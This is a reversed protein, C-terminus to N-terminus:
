AGLLAQDYAFLAENIEFVDYKGNVIFYEIIVDFKSSHSLAFGAKRLLSETESLDLKLAIALAIATPKSPRYAPDSRIKSFLKRDVNARKYVESDKYGREDIMRLLSTSFSEDLSELASVLSSKGAAAGCPAPTKDTTRESAEHEVAEYESAEENETLLKFLRRKKKKQPEPPAVQAMASFLPVSEGPANRYANRRYDPVVENEKIYEDIERTLTKGITFSDRDYVVLIVDLDSECGDLFAAITKRAVELAETKPYGYAGSSILPFAVSEIKYRVALKLSERYCSELLAREGDKGGRWIPGVTHIVYKAKLAYGRTIKAEGVRCGGLTRCEELLGPGAARHIAGDVGGGGLLTSNAANVVAGVDLTTIDARIMRLPM